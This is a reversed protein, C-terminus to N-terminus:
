RSATLNAESRTLLHMSQEHTASTVGVVVITILSQAAKSQKHSRGTRAVTTTKHAASSHGVLTGTICVEATIAATAPSPMRGSWPFMRILCNLSRSAEDESIPPDEALAGINDNTRTRMRLAGTLRTAPFPRITAANPLRRIHRWEPKYRDVFGTQSSCGTDILVSAHASMGEVSALIRRRRFFTPGKICHSAGCQLGSPHALLHMGRVMPLSPAEGKQHNATHPRLVTHCSHRLVRRVTIM